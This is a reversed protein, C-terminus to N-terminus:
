GYECFFGSTCIAWTALPCQRACYADSTCWYHPCVQAQAQPAVLFLLLALAPLLTALKAIPRIM